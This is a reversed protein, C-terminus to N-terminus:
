TLADRVNGVHDETFPNLKLFAIKTSSAFFERMLFTQKDFTLFLANFM